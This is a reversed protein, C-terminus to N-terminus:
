SPPAVVVRVTATVTSRPGVARVKLTHEGATEASTDWAGEPGGFLYPATTQTDRLVDDVLFEVRRITGGVEVQWLVRGSVTQGDTFGVSAIRPPQVTNKVTVVVSSEVRRGEATIARVSLTHRGNQERASDWTGGVGGFVYPAQRQTDRLRGDVRFEVREVPLGAPVAEWPVLGTVTSGFAFSDSTVDFAPPPPTRGLAYSRVYSLYRGWNWYPGPDKHHAFGGVRRGYADPVENHGIVHRRDIPLVYRRMITAVVRASARYEADTLTWPTWTFGEHEIGISRLNVAGNGAHWGARTHPLMRTVEGRRSVVYHASVRARPNRFWAVTGAFSGEAVHVVVLRILRTQRYAHPYNARNAPVERVVLPPEVAARAPGAIVAAVLCALFAARAIRFVLGRM